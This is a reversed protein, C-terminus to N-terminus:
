PSNNAVPAPCVRTVKAIIAELEAQYGKILPDDPNYPKDQADLLM